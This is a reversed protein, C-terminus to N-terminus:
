GPTNRARTATRTRRSISNRSRSTPVMPCASLVRPLCLGVYRSDPADRLSKWAAYEPTDFIKGIDRPNALETYSDM